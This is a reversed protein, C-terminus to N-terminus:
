RPRVLTALRSRRKRGRPEPEVHGPHRPRRARGLTGNSCRRRGPRSGSSGCRSWRRRRHCGDWAHSTESPRLVIVAVGLEAALPLLERECEREYLNYPQQVTSFSGTRLAEALEGFAAAQWHTVGLRDIRGAAREDQLWPLHQRWSVLNHVQEIEVRGFRRPQDAFQRRGDEVGSAWIKTAIAAEARRDDLVAGLTEEAAGYM